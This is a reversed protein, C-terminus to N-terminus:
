SRLCISYSKIFYKVFSPNDKIIQYCLHCFTLFKLKPSLLYFHKSFFKVIKESGLLDTLIKIQFKFSLSKFENLNFTPLHLKLINTLLNVIRDSENSTILDLPPASCPILLSLRKNFYQQKRLQDLFYSPLEQKTVPNIKTERLQALESSSYYWDIGNKDQYTALDLYGANFNFNLRLSPLKLINSCKQRSDLDNITSYYYNMLSTDLHLRQIFNWQEHDFYVKKDILIKLCDILLEHIYETYHSTQHHQNKEMALLIQNILWYPISDYLEILKQYADINFSSVTWILYQQSPLNPKLECAKKLCQNTYYKISLRLSLKTNNKLLYEPKDLLHSVYKLIHDTGFESLEIPYKLEKLYTSIIPSSKNYFVPLNVDTESVLLLSAIIKTLEPDRWSRTLEQYLYVLIHIPESYTAINIYANASAGYRLALGILILYYKCKKLTTPSPIMLLVQVLLQNPNLIKQNLLKYIHSVHEIILDKDNGIISKVTKITM